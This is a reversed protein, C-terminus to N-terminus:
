RSAAPWRRAPRSASARSSRPCWPSGRADLVARVLEEVTLMQPALVVREELGYRRILRPVLGDDPIRGDVIKLTVHEPLLSLAELLTGIGKKRDETRGVFLLDAEKRVGPIPRFLETDTGNYVVPM